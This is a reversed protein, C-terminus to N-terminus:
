FRKPLGAQKLVENATHRSKIGNPVPFNRRSKPSYWIDHRGTRVQRCGNEELIQILQKDYTAPM